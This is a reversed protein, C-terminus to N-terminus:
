LFKVYYPVSINSRDNIIVEKYIYIHDGTMYNNIRHLTSYKMHKFM